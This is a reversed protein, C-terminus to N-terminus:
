RVSSWCTFFGLMQSNCLEDHCLNFCTNFPLFLMSITEDVLRNPAHRLLCHDMCLQATTNVVRSLRKRCALQFSLNKVSAGVVVGV